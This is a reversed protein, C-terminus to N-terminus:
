VTSSPEPFILTWFQILSSSAALVLAFKLAIVACVYTLIVPFTLMTLARPALSARWAVPVRGKTLSLAVRCRWVCVCTFLPPSRNSRFRQLQAAKGVLAKGVVGIVVGIM